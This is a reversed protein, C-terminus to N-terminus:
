GRKAADLAAQLSKRYAVSTATAGSVTDIDASQAALAEQRLIPVARDNIQISRYHSTPLQLAAVDTMSGGSVTIRVQVPGFETSVVPGSYSGAHLAGPAPARATSTAVPGASGGAAPPHAVTSPGASGSGSGAGTGPGASSPNGAGPGSGGPVPPATAVVAHGPLHGTKVGVLLTTGAATGLIAAIARRVV